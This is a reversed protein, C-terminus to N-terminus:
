PRLLCLPLLFLFYVDPTTNLLNLTAQKKSYLVAVVTWRERERM